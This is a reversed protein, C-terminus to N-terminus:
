LRCEKGVRREESRAPLYKTPNKQFLAKHEETAFRYSVGDHEASIMIHGKWAKSGGEPFYSVPDYGLIGVGEGLLDHSTRNIEKVSESRATGVLVAVISIAGLVTLKTLSNM